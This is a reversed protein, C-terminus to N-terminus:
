WLCCIWVYVRKTNYGNNKCYESLTSVVDRVSYSWTWSLMHNALGVHDEGELCHVYAAGMKGDIPCVKSKGRERVFGKPSALNEIEYFKSRVSLGPYSAVDHLFHNALHFVSVGLFGPHDAFSIDLHRPVTLSEEGSEENPTSSSRNRADWVKVRGMIDEVLQMAAVQNQMNFIITLNKPSKTSLRVANGSKSHLVCEIIDDWAWSGSHCVLGLSNAKIIRAIGDDQIYNYSTPEFKYQTSANVKYLAKAVIRQAEEEKGRVYQSCGSMSIQLESSVTSSLPELHCVILAVAL